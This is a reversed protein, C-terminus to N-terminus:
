RKSWELQKMAAVIDVGEPAPVFEGLDPAQGKCKPCVFTMTKDVVYFGKRFRDGGDYWTVVTSTGGTPQQFPGARTLRVMIVGVGQCNPCANSLEGREIAVILAPMKNDREHVQITLM